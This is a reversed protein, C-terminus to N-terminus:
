RQLWLKCLHLLLTLFFDGILITSYCHVVSKTTMKGVGAAGGKTHLGRYCCILVIAIGFILSKALGSFFDFLSVHFPIPSLYEASSLHFSGISILYGGFIGVVNSCLTLLPFLFLASLFRPLVLYHIPDIAMSRLADIQDTVKMTGLEACMAAGVRGTIMFGTFVPGLETVIAKTVMIGTVGALGKESLTLYSQTALILGTALGTLGMIPLSQVGMLYFQERVNNWRPIRLLPSLCTRLSFCIFEGWTAFFGTLSSYFFVPSSKM